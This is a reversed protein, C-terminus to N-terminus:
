IKIGILDRVERLTESAVLNATSNGSHLIEILYKDDLSLMKERIPDILKKLCELLKQKLTVDGLGGKRYHSKLESVELQDEYFASLYEFVVNGEVKGLDTIKIHLPDTYMSMVKKEIIPDTDSLYIANNLSKSAKSKGDIGSLRGHKSKIAQVKPFLQSGYINNFKKAVENTLEIMPMQDDGVPVLEAKFCLIDAAQSIPYCVFGAPVSKTYNKLVMETKVTPNQQLRSLSVLNMFYSTIEFLASIESQLFITNKEPDIGVSIYSRLVELVSKRIKEPNNFHDTLAQINAVMIYQSVGEKGQNLVRNQLSGVYHGLHLTGSPRDGTLIVKSSM